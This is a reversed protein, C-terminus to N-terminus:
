TRTKRWRQRRARKKLKDQMKLYTKEVDKNEKDWDLGLATFASVAHSAFHDSTMASRMIAAGAGDKGFIAGYTGFPQPTGLFATRIVATACGKRHEQGNGDPGRLATMVDWLKKRDMIKTRVPPHCFFRRIILVMEEFTQPENIKRSM